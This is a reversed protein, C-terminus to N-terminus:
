RIVPSNVLVKMQESFNFWKRWMDMRVWKNRIAYTISQTLLSMECQQIFCGSYQNRLQELNHIEITQGKMARVTNHFRLLWEQAADRLAGGYLGRLNMPNGQIYTKTHAQCEQCPLISPLYKVMFELYNGQDTDMIRNGSLGCNHALCHLYRWLIPGWEEPDAPQEGQGMYQVASNRKKNCGCGM